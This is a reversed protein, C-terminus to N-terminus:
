MNGRLLFFSYVVVGGVILTGVRLLGRGLAPKKLGAIEAVACVFGAMIFKFVVMGPIGWRVLVWRAVPNGEIMVHRTRGEASYRLIVYTMFVDLACVLIFWSLETEFQLTKRRRSM